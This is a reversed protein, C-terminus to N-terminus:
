RGGMFFAYTLFALFGSYLCLYALLYVVRKETLPELATLLRVLTIPARSEVSAKISHGNVEVPRLVINKANRLGGMSLIIHLENMIQPMLAILVVVEVGGIVALAAFATGVSLSGVNGSFVKAPFINQTAFVALSAFMSVSIIVVDPKSYLIGISLLPALSAMSTLAMSGNLVDVSNVANAVIATGVLVLLPYLITLRAKGIFPIEPYPSYTGLMVIPLGASAVLIPKLIPNLERFDEALGIATSIVMALSLALADSYLGALALGASAGSTIGTVLSLGGIKPIKPKEPKHIDVGLLGFKRSIVRSIPLSTATVVASIILAMIPPLM